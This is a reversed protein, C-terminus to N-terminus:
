FYFANYNAQEIEYIKKRADVLRAHIGDIEQVMPVLDDLRLVKYVEGGGHVTEKLVECLGVAQKQLKLLKLNALVKPVLLSHFLRAYLPSQPYREHSAEEEAQGTVASIFNKYRRHAQEQRKAFGPDVIGVITYELLIDPAGEPTVRIKSGFIDATISVYDENFAFASVVGGVNTDLVPCNLLKGM